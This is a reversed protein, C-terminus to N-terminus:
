KVRLLNPPSYIERIEFRPCRMVGGFLIELLIELTRITGYRKCHWALRGIKRAIRSYIRVGTSGITTGCSHWIGSCLYAPTGVHESLRLGELLSVLHLSVANHAHTSNASDATM